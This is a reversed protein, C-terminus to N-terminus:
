TLLLDVCARDKSRDAAPTKNYNSKDASWPLEIPNLIKGVHPPTFSFGQGADAYADVQFKNRTSEERVKARLEELSLLELFDLFDQGPCLFLHIGSHSRCPLCSKRIGASSHQDIDRTHLVAMQHLGQAM